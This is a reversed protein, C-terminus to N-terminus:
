RGFANDRASGGQEWERTTVGSSGANSFYGNNGTTTQGRTGGGTNAGVTSANQNVLGQAGGSSARSSAGAM